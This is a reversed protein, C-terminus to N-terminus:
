SDFLTAGRKHHIVLGELKHGHLLKICTGPPTGDLALTNDVLKIGLDYCKRQSNEGNKFTKLGILLRSPHNQSMCPVGETQASKLHKLVDVRNWERPRWSAAAPKIEDTKPASGKGCGAVREVTNQELFRPDCKHLISCLSCSFEFLTIFSGFPLFDNSHFSHCFGLPFTLTRM